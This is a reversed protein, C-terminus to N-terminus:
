EKDVSYEEVTVFDPLNSYDFEAMRRKMTVLTDQPVNHISGYDTFLKIIVVNYGYDKADDIYNDIDQRRLNTNAQIVNLGRSMALNVKMGCMNHCHGLKKLNFNYNGNEDVMFMDAEWYEDAKGEAIMKKALTSKGAGAIGQLIYLTSM